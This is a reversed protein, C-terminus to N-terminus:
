CLPGKPRPTPTVEPGRNDSIGAASLQKRLEAIRKGARDQKAKTKRHAESSQEFQEKYFKAEKVVTDLVGGVNAMAKRHESFIENLAADITETQADAMLISLAKINM